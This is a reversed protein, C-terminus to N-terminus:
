NPGGISHASGFDSYHHRKTYSRWPRAFRATVAGTFPASIIEYAKQAKLSEATNQSVQAAAEIANPTRCLCPEQKIFAELEKRMRKNIRQTLWHPTM